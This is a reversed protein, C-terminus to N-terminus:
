NLSGFTGIAALREAGVVGSIHFVAFPFRGFIFVFPVFCNFSPARQLTTPPM